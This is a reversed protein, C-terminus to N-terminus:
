SQRDPLTLMMGDMLDNLTIQCGLRSNPLREALTGELLEDEHDSMPELRDLWDHDVYVHCTACNCFGGCEGVIGKLDNRTAVGMINDGGVGFLEVIDGDPTRFIIRPM